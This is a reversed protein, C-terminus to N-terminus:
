TAEGLPIEVTVTTGHGPFSDFTVHGNVTRVRTEINRRGMGARGGNAPDFGVGDDEVMLVLFGERQVVDIRATRAMSHRLINAVLEQAIRYVVLAVYEPVHDGAEHLLTTFRTGTDTAVSNVLEALAARLGLEQLTTSGLSHAITRVDTCARDLAEIARDFADREGEAFTAASDDLRHLNVKVAALLQGVGDHLDGAIRRQEEEQTRVVAQMVNNRHRIEEDKLARELDFRLRLEAIAKQKEQGAQERMLRVYDRHHDLAVHYDGLSESVRALEEHIQYEVVRHEGDRAIELAQELVFRADAHQGIARYSRGVSLLARVLLECPAVGRLLAVARTQCYLAVETRGMRAHIDAVNLLAAANEAPLGLMDYVTLSRLGCDLAAELDNRAAHIAALNALARVQDSRDGTAQFVDLSRALYEHATELDGCDSYLVGVSHLTRGARLSDGLEEFIGLANLQHEIARVHDGLRAALEGLRSCADAVTEREGAAQARELVGAFCRHAEAFDGGRIAADGAEFAVSLGPEPTDSSPKM